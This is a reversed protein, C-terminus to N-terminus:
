DVSIGKMAQERAAQAEKLLKRAEVSSPDMMLASNAYTISSKYEKRKYAARGEKVMKAALALNAQDASPKAPEPEPQPLPQPEPVPEPTKEAPPPQVVEPKSVVVPPAIVPPAQLLDRYRLIGFGVAIAAVLVLLIPVAVRRRAPPPEAPTPLVPVRKPAAEVVVVPPAPPPTPARSAELTRRATAARAKKLQVESPVPQSPLAPLADILDILAQASEPRDEPKKATMRDVLPQLMELGAPLRPLPESVHQLIIAIAEESQFPPVGTLMEYLVIGLSYLDTRADVPLARAQEPSMYRPTGITAGTKTTGTDTGLVKAIGFDTLVPMGREDFIINEPKIDRHIFGHAHAEVFAETVERLIAIAEAPSIGREIRERLDGGPLLRMSYFHYGDAHGVEFVTVINRHSLRAAARVEIDFRAILGPSRELERPLIKLAVRRGLKGDEAEYVDAMGGSGLKRLIRYHGVASGPELDAM